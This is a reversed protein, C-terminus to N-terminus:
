TGGGVGKSNVRGVPEITVDAAHDDPQYRIQLSVATYLNALKEPSTNALAPGIEGLSDIRAHIEAESLASSTPTADLEAKAAAREAQAENITEALAAPDVGAEIAEQFRRIRTEADTVRKQAAERSSSAGSQDQSAALAKVTRTVNDRHFLDALWGNIEDRIMDERLYVAPPHSELAPSSPALTRAPCRYYMAHKRPSAEMKRGCLACRVRGRFLYTRKTPRGGREAKRATRLGGTSKSRRLLQAQTFDQVTILAPHAPQRSRVVRDPQSRRFRTVHGAAVDDPDLLTEHRTWRGFFAYGTYRPNDLIARVTSAQWGDALRHRNQRPRQASPCPVGERNLGNAIARDGQGSLYEAFIRRVVEAASEDVALVRLRYGESEKRPNPHSGGDVVVYGYPARGGQHRGENLVQADMAARVRTQIHQRESESMGGLVSMLMKHSPNHSDFKGGLEPVWLDVGHAAFKPAILSFQNGFWCRTGEGVVVADWGRDSDKLASLLRGAEERREWPVSRSQGIDFFEAVVSGGLPEVFKRANSLQWNYSTEPDQNDETSCRGYFAVAGLGTDAAEAVEVGLLGDLTAWPDQSIDATM